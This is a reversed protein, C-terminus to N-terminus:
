SKPPPLTSPPTRWSPASDAHEGYFSDVASVKDLDRLRLTGNLMEMLLVMATVCLGLFWCALMETCAGLFLGLRIDPGQDRFTVLAVVAPLLVIVGLQLLAAVLRGRLYRHRVSLRLSLRHYHILDRGHVFGLFGASVGLVLLLQQLHDGLDTTAKFGLLALYLLLPFVVLALIVAKALRERWRVLALRAARGIDRGLEAPRDYEGCLAADCVMYLPAFARRAWGHQRPPLWDRMLRGLDVVDQARDAAKQSPIGCPCLLPESDSQLLIWDPSLRGHCVGQNHFAQVAHALRALISAAELPEFPRRDLLEALPTGAAAATVLIRGDACTEVAHLALVAPHHVVVGPAPAGVPQPTRDQWVLVPRDLSKQRGRYVSCRATDQLPKGPEVDALIVEQPDMASTGSGASKEGRGVFLKQLYPEPEPPKGAAPNGGGPSSLLTYFWAILWVLSALLSLAPILTFLAGIITSLLEATGKLMEQQSGLLVQLRPALASATLGTWGSLYFQGLFIALGAVGSLLALRAFRRSQRNRRWRRDLDDALANADPYRKGPEKQLCRHCLAVLTKPIRHNLSRLRPAEQEMVQILTDMITPAQFPPRGALMEFFVAGLAHVDAEPGVRDHDGRAQEPAMYAPTGLVTGSATDPSIMKLPSLEPLVADAPLVDVAEEEATAHDPGQRVRKALGFDLVRPWDTSDLMINSPKLDRHIIGQAHAAGVARAIGLLYRVAQDITLRRRKLIQNLPYGPVFDMTYYSHGEMEGWSHITVIGPHSLEGTARAELIFRNRETADAGQTALMMKLAVLRGSRRERARYVIGMGGRAIEGLLEYDGFPRAELTWDGTLISAPDRPLANSPPALTPQDAVDPTPVAPRPPPTLTPQDHLAGAPVLDITSPDGSPPTRPAVTPLESNDVM